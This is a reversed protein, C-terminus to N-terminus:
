RGRIGQPGMNRKKRNFAGVVLIFAGRYSTTCVSDSNVEASISATIVFLHPGLLLLLLRLLLLLLFLFLLVFVFILRLGAVFLFTMM